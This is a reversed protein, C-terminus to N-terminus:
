PKAPMRDYGWRVLSENAKQKVDSTGLKAALRFMAEPTGYQKLTAPNTGRLATGLYFYPLGSHPKLRSAEKLYPLADEDYMHNGEYCVGIAINAAFEFDRSDFNEPDFSVNRTVSVGGTGERMEPRGISEKFMAVAEEFRGVHELLLAYKFDTSLRGSKFRPGTGDVIWLREYQQLAKAYWGLKTYADGLGVAAMDLDGPTWLTLAQRYVTIADQIRNEHMAKDGDQALSLMLSSRDERAKTEEPSLGFGQQTTYGRDLGSPPPDAWIPSVMCGAILLAPLSTIATIKFQM